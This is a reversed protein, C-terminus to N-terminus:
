VAKLAFRDAESAVVGPAHVFNAHFDRELRHILGSWCLQRLCGKRFERVGRTVAHLKDHEKAITEHYNKSAGADEKSVGLLNSVLGELVGHKM